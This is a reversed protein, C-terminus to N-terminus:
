KKKRPIEKLIVLEDNLTDALYNSHTVLTKQSPRFGRKDKKWSVKKELIYIMDRDQNYLYMTGDVMQLEWVPDLLFGMACLHAVQEIKKVEHSQVSRGLAESLFNIVDEETVPKRSWELRERQETSSIFRDINVMPSFAALLGTAQMAVRLAVNRDRDMVMILWSYNDPFEAIRNKVKFIVGIEYTPQPELLDLLILDTPDENEGLMISKSNACYKRTYYLLDEIIEARNKPYPNPVYNQSKPDTLEKLPQPKVRKEGFAPLCFLVIMIHVVIFVVVVTHIINKPKV